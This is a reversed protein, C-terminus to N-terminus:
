GEEIEQLTEKNAEYMAQFFEGFDAFKEVIYGAFWIVHDNLDNESRVLTFLDIDTSSVAMPKLNDRTLGLENIELLELHSLFKNGLVGVDTELNFDKTGFLVVDQYFGTWGNAAFLFDRYDKPLKFRLTREAEEIQKETAGPNPLHFEWLAQPDKEVIQKLVNELRSIKAKWNAM